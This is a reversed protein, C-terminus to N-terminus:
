NNSDVVSTEVNDKVEKSVGPLQSCDHELTDLEDMIVKFIGAIRKLDHRIRDIGM